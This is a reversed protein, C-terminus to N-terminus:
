MHTHTHIYTPIYTHICISVYMDISMWVYMTRPCSVQKARSLTEVHEKHVRVQREREELERERAELAERYGQCEEELVAYEEVSVGAGLVRGEAPPTGPRSRPSGEGGQDDDAGLRALERSLTDCRHSAADLDDNLHQVEEALEREREQGKEVEEELERHSKRLKRLEAEM